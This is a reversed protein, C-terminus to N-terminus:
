SKTRRKDAYHLCNLAPNTGDTRVKKPVYIELKQRYGYPVRFKCDKCKRHEM